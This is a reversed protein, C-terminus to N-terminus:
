EEDYRFRLAIGAELYFNEKLKGEVYEPIEVREDDVTYHEYMHFLRMGSKFYLVLHPIVYFDLFLRPETMFTIQNEGLQSIYSNEYDSGGLRFTEGSLELEFGTYFKPSLKREYIVYAPLLAAFYDMESILWDFGFLPMFFPGYTDQNYFMGFQWFFNENREKFLIFMGGIQFHKKTVDKLDSNLKPSIDLYVSWRSEGFQVYTFFPLKFTHLRLDKLVTDDSRLSFTKYQPKLGVVNGGKLEIPLATEIRFENFKVSQNDDKLSASPLYYYRGNLVNVYNQAEISQLNIGAFLLLMVSYRPIQM